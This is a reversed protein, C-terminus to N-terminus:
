CSVFNNKKPVYKFILTIYAISVLQYGKSKLFQYLTSQNIKEIDINHMEILIYKPKYKDWNNSILVELDLGEVDINMFDIKKGMPLYQDLISALTNTHVTLREKLPINQMIREDALNKSFTNYASEEFIYFSINSPNESIGIELNIDRPRKRSFAKMSGPKADINIGSWGKKYFLYTNSFRVPKYAGIDIYFGKRVKDAELLFTALVLDEGAMSYSKQSLGLYTTKIKVLFKYLKPLNQKIIKKIINM